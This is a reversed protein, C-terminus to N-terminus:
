ICNNANEIFIKSGAVKELSRISKEMSNVSETPQETKIRINGIRTNELNIKAKPLGSKPM